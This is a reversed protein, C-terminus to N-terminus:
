GRLRLMAVRSLMAGLRADWSHAWLALHRDVPVPAPQAIGVGTPNAVHLAREQFAQSAGRL